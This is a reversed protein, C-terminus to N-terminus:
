TKWLEYIISEINYGKLFQAVMNPCEVEVGYEHLEAYYGEAKLLELAAFRHKNAILLIHTTRMKEIGLM